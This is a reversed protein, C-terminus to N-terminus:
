HFSVNFLAITFKSIFLLTLEVRYEKQIQVRRSLQVEMHLIWYNENSPNLLFNPESCHFIESYKKRNRFSKLNQAFYEGRDQLAQTLLPALPARVWLNKLCYYVAGM